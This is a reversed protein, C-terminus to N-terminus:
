VVDQRSPKHYDKDSARQQGPIYGDDKTQWKYILLTALAAALIVGTVGGAIVGAFVEERELLSKSNAVNIFGSGGDEAPWNTNVFTPVASDHFTNETRGSPNVALIRVDESNLPVEMNRLEGQESWDGSGSGSSDLDYGSGELDGPPASFSPHVAHSLGLTLFLSVIVSLRM